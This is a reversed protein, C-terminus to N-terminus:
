KKIAATRAQYRDMSRQMADIAFRVGAQDLRKVYDDFHEIPERGMIFRSTMEAIYIKMDSMIANFKRADAAGVELAPVLLETSADSWVRVADAQEPMSYFQRLYRVDQVLPGQQPRAHAFIAEAVSLKPNKLVRDTYRPQGDAMTYSVGERGFSLALGGEASYGYDLFKVTEVVHRNNRSIAAGIGSYVQGAEPWTVYRKGDPGAPYPAAELKFGPHRAKNMATFRALGSGNYGAYAGVVNNTMKADFQRETQSLYDPDLLGERYWRNMTVLFQKYQPEVPSYHVKGNVQYFDPALGFAGLFIWMPPPLGPVTKEGPITLASFPIEDARGNGNPDRTKFAHLVTHWEDLTTPTALGLKKLWDTRVQPGWISRVQPDLRLMPFAYITGDDTSIQRYMDSNADLLAQLNPAYRRILDNLPVIVGDKLAKSSGGPYGFWDAEIVDPFNGSVLLLNFREREAGLPPHQFDVTIGTREALLQYASQEGYSKLSVAAKGNFNAFWSLHLPQHVIPLTLAEAAQAAASAGSVTLTIVSLRLLARLTM